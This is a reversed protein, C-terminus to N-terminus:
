DKRCLGVLHVGMQAPLWRTLLVNLRFLPENFALYTPDHIIHLQQLQLGGGKALRELQPRSNAQYVVPFTDAEARGYLLPVLHRQLPQLGWNLWAIPSHRHPTMFIFVGNPKLVRGVEQFVAQPNLLHELVWACIVIECSQDPLPITNADAVSRALGPLRHEHLSAADPDLGLALLPLDALQELAGGRGCGIDLLRGQPPSVQRILAEYRHTAPM